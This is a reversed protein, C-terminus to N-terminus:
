EISVKKLTNNANFTPFYMLEIKAPNLTYHGSYRPVLKVEFEHEGIPLKDCFITAENKFNERHSEFRNKNQTTAYSCGGPIPVNILVYEADKKIKVKVLLSVEQGGKLVKDNTEGFQTTIEFDGMKEKPNNEWYSQHSTFYVPYDGTRTVSIQQNPAVSFEYPFTEIVENLDGELILKPATPKGGSHIFDDMITEVIQASEFTNRWYGSQRREFFYNRTQSLLASHDLTDAKLIKYTLLTNQINNNLINSINKEDSLYMNGFLTTKQIKLISDLQYEMGHVQQLETLMIRENLEMQEKGELKEIYYSYDVQAELLNLAKLLRYTEDFNSSTELRWIM